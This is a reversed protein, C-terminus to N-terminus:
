ITNYLRISTDIICKETKYEPINNDIYILDTDTKILSPYLLVYNNQCKQTDDSEPCLKITAHRYIGDAIINDHQWDIDSIINKVDFSMKISTDTNIFQGWKDNFDNINIDLYTIM